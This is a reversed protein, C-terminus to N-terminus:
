TIRENKQTEFNFRHRVPDSSEIARSDTPTYWRTLLEKGSAEAEEKTAFRLDNHSWTGTYVESKFSM